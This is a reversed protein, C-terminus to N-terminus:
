QAAEVEAVKESLVARAAEEAGVTSEADAQLAELVTQAEKARQSSCIQAEAAATRADELCKRLM